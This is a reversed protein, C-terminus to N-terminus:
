FVELGSNHTLRQFEFIGWQYQSENIQYRRHDRVERGLHPISVVRVAANSSQRNFRKCM